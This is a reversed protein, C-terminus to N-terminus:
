VHSVIEKLSPATSAGSAPSLNQTQALCRFCPFPKPDAGFPWAPGLAAPFVPQQEPQWYLGLGLVAELPWPCLVEQSSTLCANSGGDGQRALKGGVLSHQGGCSGLSGGPAVPLSPTPTGPAGEVHTVVPATGSATMDPCPDFAEPWMLRLPPPEVWVPAQGRGRGTPKGRQARPELQKQALAAPGVGVLHWRSGPGLPLPWLWAM